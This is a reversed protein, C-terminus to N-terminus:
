RVRMQDHGVVHHEVGGALRSEALQLDPGRLAADARAVGVLRRAEPDPDLVQEVRLDQALLDHRRELGLLLQQARERAVRLEVQVRHGLFVKTVPVPELRVDGIGRVQAPVREVGAARHDELAGLARQEIEVV